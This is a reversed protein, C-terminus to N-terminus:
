WARNLESLLESIFEDSMQNGSKITLENVIRLGETLADPVENEKEEAVTCGSSHRNTALNKCSQTNVPKM